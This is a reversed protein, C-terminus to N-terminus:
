KDTMTQGRAGVRGQSLGIVDVESLSASMLIIVSYQRKSLNVSRVTASMCFSFDALTAACSLYEIDRSEVIQASPPKFSM